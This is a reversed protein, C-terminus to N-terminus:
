FSKGNRTKCFVRGGRGVVGDPFFFFGTGVSPVFSFFVHRVIKDFVIKTLVVPFRKNLFSKIGCMKWCKCFGQGDLM